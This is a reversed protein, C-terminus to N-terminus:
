RENGRLLELTNQAVNWQIPRRDPFRAAWRRDRLRARHILFARLSRPALSGWLAFALAVADARGRPLAARHLMRGVMGARQGAGIPGSAISMFVQPSHRRPATDSAGQLTASALLAEYSRGAAFEAACRLMLAIGQEVSADASTLRTSTESFRYSYLADPLVLIPGATAMRAFFDLDEWFQCEPRYGEIRDFASRRFLVSGHSFPAGLGFKALLNRERGKVVRGKQDIGLSLCAAMVADPRDRLVQLQLALRDPHSIDDADMRAILSGRAARVVWNASGAPGSGQERRLLRIRGDRAAWAQLRESSGDSSGDDGIVFEFDPHSQGVISAVAEDIYPVANHVPMVVSLSAKWDSLRLGKTSCTARERIARHKIARWVFALALQHETRDHAEREVERRKLLCGHIRGAFQDM